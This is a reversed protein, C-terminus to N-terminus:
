ARFLEYRSTKKVVSCDASIIEAVMTKHTITDEVIIHIDKDPERKFAVIACTIAYVHTESAQRAKGFIRAHKMSTQEAVSSPIIESLNIQTTDADSLTKVRWRGFGCRQADCFITFSILIPLIYKKM